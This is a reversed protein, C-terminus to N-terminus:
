APGRGRLMGRLESLRAAGLLQVALGYVALGALPLTVPFGLLHKLIGM